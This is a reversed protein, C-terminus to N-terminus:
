LNLNKARTYDSSCPAGQMARPTTEVVVKVPVSILGRSASMQRAWQCIADRFITHLVFERARISLACPEKLMKSLQHSWPTIRQGRAGTRKVKCRVKVKEPVKAKPRRVPVKAEPRLLGLLPEAM